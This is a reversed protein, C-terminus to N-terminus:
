DESLMLKNKMQENYIESYIVNSKLLEESSGIGNIRGGDMVIIRDAEKISSIRQSIIIKTTEPLYNRLRNKILKDTHTDVASTADDLILIKPKKLIARAICIRQKQGGSLNTGDQGLETELGNPLGKIFETACAIEMAEKIDDETAIENGWLLNERVSKSFLTSKQLVVSIKDRLTKLKYKSLEIGDILIKGESVDYLRPILSVLTTKGCGTAGIIGITEGAKIEFNLNELDYGKSNKDYKFSVKNFSVSGTTIDVADDADSDNIDPQEKIVELIRVTSARSMFYSVAIVAVNVLAVLIQVVYTTITTLKGIEMQGNLILKSGILNVALIAFYFVGMMFPMASVVIMNSGISANTLGDNAVAFKDKEFKGRVFSKVVRIGILNEQISSNLGDFMKFVKKFKRVAIPALMVLFLLLVPLIVLFTGAVQKSIKITLFFALALEVPARFLQRILMLYANQVTTIDTTMRTVLSATSFKDINSFSYDQIRDYMEKRLSAGLGMTAVASLRAAVVGCLASGFSMLIMKFGMLFIYSKDGGVIGKDIIDAMYFPILLGLVVEGILLM